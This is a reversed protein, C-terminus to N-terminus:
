DIKPAAHAEDALLQAIDRRGQETLAILKSLDRRHRANEVLQREDYDRFRLLIRKATEEEFGLIKLTEFSADLASGFIERIAPVGLEAYEYADTRSHARAIVQLGPFRSRIRKVAAMAAEPNDIAMLLVKASQAGASELLDLRTADGYYAKFGFRRVTEIQGPDIDIVTAGIGLGRLVRVAVQGFRGFGAVIVPHTERIADPTREPREKPNRMLFREYAMVLFPTTLMSTAVAANLVSVIEQSLLSSSAGFLVFAFEGGQSLAVAFLGADARKCYGFAQAIPYLIMAKLVVVGLALGLVLWPSRLFLSVDVSMGVAIFFLGLLLGKFPEIDLELEHRYESDALIVGAIFAGLAMSLGVWEMLAATGLVVFLSFGVFIERLRTEAIYRLVPRVLFRGALILLVIIGLAEAAKVWNMQNQDQTFIGLVLLLPVVALDQFLLVAFSAQGGPTPLLNKETLTALGIATSSMAFGMGAILGVLLPQKLLVAIATVAGITAAVQVGGLGFIARRLAWVRAANLELGVLFLLLVVGFEAIQLVTKPDSVLRLGWPGIAVGAVLYGLVSGLGIRKFVPVAIIGAALYILAQELFGNSEM